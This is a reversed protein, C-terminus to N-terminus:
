VATAASEIRVMADEQLRKAAFDIKVGITARQDLPDTGSGLPKYIAELSSWETVGYAGRGVVLTPYVTVTSSFSQVNSSEVVRVGHIAGVEGSFLRDPTAYKAFEVYEGNTEARLDGAVLPHMVAVYYGDFDPADSARLKIQAKRLHASSITDGAALTARSTADGAYVINSGGMVETQIVQDVIRGLNNALEVGANELIRTPAAHLLRDSLEVYLGYQTPTATVVSYAFSTSTPTTGEDLAANTPTVTLKSPKAWAVTGYGDDVMPADALEYFRLNPEFNELVNKYLYTQLYNEGISARTATAM